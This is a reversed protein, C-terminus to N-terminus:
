HSEIARANLINSTMQWANEPTISEMQSANEPIITEGKHIEAIGGKTVYGGTQAKPIADGGNEFHSDINGEGLGIKGLLWVVNAAGRAISGILSAISKLGEVFAKTNEPDSFYDSIEQVVPLLATSFVQKLKTILRNFREQLDYNYNEYFLMVNAARILPFFLM